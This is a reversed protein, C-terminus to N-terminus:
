HGLAKLAWNVLLVLIGGIVSAALWAGSMRNRYGEHAKVEDRIEKIDRERLERFEKAVSERFDHLESAAEDLRSTLSQSLRGAEFAAGAKVDAVSREMRTEVAILEPRSAKTDDMRDVKAALDRVYGGMLSVESRLTALAERSETRLDGIALLIKNLDAAAMDWGEIAIARAAM